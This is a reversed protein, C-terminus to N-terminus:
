SDLPPQGALEMTIADDRVRIKATVHQHAALDFVTPAGSIVGAMDVMNALEVKDAACRLVAYVVWVRPGRQQVEGKHQGKTAIMHIAAMAVDIPERGEDAALVEVDDCLRKFEEPSAEWDFRTPNGKGKANDITITLV